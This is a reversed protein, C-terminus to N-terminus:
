HPFSLAFCCLILPGRVEFIQRFFEVAEGVTQFPPDDFRRLLPMVLTSEGSHPLRIVDLLQVTHNRPDTEFLPSRLHELIKREQDYVPDEPINKLEVRQGNSIRIADLVSLSQPPTSM